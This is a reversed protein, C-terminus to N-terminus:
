HEPTQNTCRLDELDDEKNEAKMNRYQTWLEVGFTYGAWVFGTVAVQIAFAGFLNGSAPLLARISFLEYLNSVSLGASQHYARGIIRVMLAELPMVLIGAFIERLGETALITPLMTLGTVRYNLDSSPKMDNASRLEASWSGSADPMADTAEVDFSILTAQHLEEDEDDSIIDRQEMSRSLVRMREEEREERAELDPRGELARLTRRDTGDNRRREPLRDPADYEMDPAHIDLASFMSDGLPRPLTKYIPRYLLKSLYFKVRGHLLIILMPSATRLLGLSRSILSSYDSPMLRLPSQVSYPIFSKPSPGWRSSPILNLQQLIAFLRFHLTIYCFGLDILIQVAHKLLLENPTFTEEDEDWYGDLCAQVVFGAYDSIHYLIVTPIGSFFISPVSKDKNENRLIDLLGIEAYPRYILIRRRLGLVGWVGGVLVARGIEMLRLGTFTDEIKKERYDQLKKKAVMSDEVVGTVQMVENAARVHERERRRTEPNRPHGHENYQQGNLGVGGDPAQIVEDEYRTRGLAWAALSELRGM